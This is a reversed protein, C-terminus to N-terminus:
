PSGGMLSILADRTIGHRAGWAACDDSDVPDPLDRMAEEAVEPLGVKRLTDVVEQRSFQVAIV